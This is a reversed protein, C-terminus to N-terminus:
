GSLLSGIHWVFFGLAVFGVGILADFITGKLSVYSFQCVMFGFVAIVLGLGHLAAATM